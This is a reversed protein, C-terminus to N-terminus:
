AVVRPGTSPPPVSSTLVHMPIRTLRVKSTISVQWTASTLSESVLNHFLMFVLFARPVFRSVFFIPSARVPDQLQDREWLGLVFHNRRCCYYTSGVKGERSQPTLPVTRVKTTLKTSLEIGLAWGYFGIRRGWSLDRLKWHSVYAFEGVRQRIGAGALWSIQLM